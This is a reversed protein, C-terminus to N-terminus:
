KKELICFNPYSSGYVLFYFFFRRLILLIWGVMKRENELVEHSIKKLRGLRKQAVVKLKGVEAIWGISHKVYVM